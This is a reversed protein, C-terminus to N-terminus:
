GEGERRWIGHTKVDNLSQGNERQLECDCRGCPGITRNFGFGIEDGPVCTAGVAPRVTVALYCIATKGEDHVM